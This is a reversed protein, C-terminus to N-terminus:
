CPESLESLSADRRCLPPRWPKTTRAHRRSACCSWRSRSWGHAGSVYGVFNVPGVLPVGLPEVVGTSIM